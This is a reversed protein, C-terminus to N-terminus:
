SKNETENRKDQSSDKVGVPDEEIYRRLSEERAKMM